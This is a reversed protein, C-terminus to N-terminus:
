NDNNRKKKIELKERMVMQEEIKSTKCLLLGVEMETERM